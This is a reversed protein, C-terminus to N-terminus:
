LGGVPQHGLCLPSEAEPRRVRLSSCQSAGHQRGQTQIIARYLSKECVCTKVKEVSLTCQPLTTNKYDIEELSDTDQNMNWCVSM